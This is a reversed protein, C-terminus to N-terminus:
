QKWNTVTYSVTMNSVATFARNNISAGGATAEEYDWGEQRLTKFQVATNSVVRVSNTFQTANFRYLPLGSLPVWNGLEPISGCAYIVDGPTSAPVTALFSVTVLPGSYENTTFVIMHVSNGTLTINSIRIGSDSLSTYTASTYYGARRNTLLSYTTGFLDGAQADSTKLLLSRNNDAEIVELGHLRNSGDNVSNDNFYQAFVADHRRTALLGSAPLYATWTGTSKIITELIIYQNNSMDGAKLIYAIGSEQVNTLYLETNTVPTELNVWGLQARECATLPAPVSGNFSPGLWSGGSMLTYDGMGKSEYTTDYMDALGLLHGFEHCFIGITSDGPNEYFEPQLSYSDIRVGDYLRAGPGDLFDMASSLNWAHSWIADSGYENGGMEEGPGAHAVLLGDITGDRDNDFQSFDLGAAEAMDVAAGVLEGPHRDNGYSDNAGYYALTKPARFPGVCIFNLTLAGLSMDSYYKKMSLASADAGNLLKNFFQAQPTSLFRSIDPPTNTNTAASLSCSVAATTLLAPALFFTICAFTLPLFAAARQKKLFLFIGAGTLVTILLAAPIGARSNEVPDAKGNASVTKFSPPPATQASMPVDAFEVLLVLVNRSGTPSFVKKPVDMGAPRTGPAKHLLPKVANTTKYKLINSLYHPHPPAAYLAGTTLMVLLVSWKM